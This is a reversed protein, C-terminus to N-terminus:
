RLSAAPRRLRPVPAQKRAERRAREDELGDGGGGGALAGVRGDRDLVHPEAVHEDGLSSMPAHLIIEKGTAKGALALQAGHPTFPLVALTIRGPLHASRRGTDLRHGIDDIVIVLAPLDASPGMRLAQDTPCEGPGVRAAGATSCWILLAALCCRLQDPHLAPWPTLRPKLPTVYGWYM